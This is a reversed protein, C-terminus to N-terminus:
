AINHETTKMQWKTAYRKCYSNEASKGNMDTLLCTAIPSNTHV